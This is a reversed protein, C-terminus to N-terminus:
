LRGGELRRRTDIAMQAYAQAAFCNHSVNAWVEKGNGFDMDFYNYPRKHKTHLVGVGGITNGLSAQWLFSATDASDVYWAHQLLHVKDGIGLFHIKKGAARLRSIYKGNAELLTCLIIRNLEQDDTQTFAGVMQYAFDRCIGLWHLNENALFTDLVSYIKEWNCEKTQIVFMIEPTYPVEVIIEKSSVEEKQKEETKIEHAIAEQIGTAFQCARDYNVEVDDNIKDHAILVRPRMQSVVQSYVEPTMYDGEFVGNDLIVERGKRQEEIFWQRYPLNFGAISAICFRGPLLTTMELNATPTILALKM